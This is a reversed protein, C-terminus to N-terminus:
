QVVRMYIPVAISDPQASQSIAGAKSTFGNASLVGLGNTNNVVPVGVNTSTPTIGSVGYTNGNVDFSLANSSAGGTIYWIHNHTPVTFLHSALGVTTIASSGSQTTGGVIYRGSAGMLNPLYLNVIPSSGVYTAWHGSGHETDYNALTVQRGDCLMWGEDIPAAGAYDYHPKMDGVSFSGSSIYSRLWKYVTSGLSGAQTTVVGSSNRPVNDGQLATAFQTVHTVQITGGVPSFLTNTGALAATSLFLLWLFRM